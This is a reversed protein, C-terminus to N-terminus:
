VVSKRDIGECEAVFAKMYKLSYDDMKECQAEYTEVLKRYCDFDTPLPTTNNKVAEMHRPFAEEFIKDVKMRHDLEEQLAKHNEPTSEQMVKNYLYHLKIDRSDVAFENKIHTSPAHKELIHKM